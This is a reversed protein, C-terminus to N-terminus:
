IVKLCDLERTFLAQGKDSNFWADYDTANDEFIQAGATLEDRM